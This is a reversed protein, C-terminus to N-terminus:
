ARSYEEYLREKGKHTSIYFARGLSKRQSSSSIDFGRYWEFQLKLQWEHPDVFGKASVRSNRPPEVSFGKKRGARFSCGNLGRKAAKM